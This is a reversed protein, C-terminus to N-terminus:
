GEGKGQEGRAGIPRAPIGVWVAGAPIAKKTVVAGAGTLARDGVSTPAVLVTGSGIFADDGIRTEHKAKGDYNAIITGAGINTRRGIKVDGLYTLHKAKTGSGVYAKKAETFNGLEAGDELVTGARLHTFPGVECDAGIRVGSRIVTCPLVRTRPGIEVGHDIYTTAPDEIQVGGQLHRELIARQLASRAEALHALTNVGIAEREDGIVVAATRRGEAHALGVLDTLYYEKQANKNSLRPLLALLLEKSICYVGLNVERQELEEPRADKEEVIARVRGESDRLVRGFGRAEAPRASLLALDGEAQTEVLAALSQASLLPMDGCLVCVPGPARAIEAAAAQVAHGTGLRETQLVFGVGDLDEEARLVREVEAGQEGVVILIRAPSLTRASALVWGLLTRGCLRHLVKPISSKMRTGQGAALIVVTGIKTPSSVRPSASAM